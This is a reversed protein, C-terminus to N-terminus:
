PAPEGAVCLGDWCTAGPGCDADARCAAPECCYSPLTGDNAARCNGAEDTWAGWCEDVPDPDVCAWCGDQVVLTQGEACTPPIMDCVVPYVCQSPPAPPCGIATCTAYHECYGDPGCDADIECGEGPLPECVGMPAGCDCPEGNESACLCDVEYTVCQEGEACDLDSQCEPRPAPVCVGIMQFCGPEGTAPDAPCVTEFIECAEGPGCDLDSQCEGPEFRPECTGAAVPAGCYCDGAPGCDCYDDPDTTGSLNCFFEPGCDEDSFCESPRPQCFTPEWLGCDYPCDEGEACACDVMPQMPCFSDAPCDADSWCEAPGPECTGEVPEGGGCRCDADPPCDAGCRAVPPLECHEGPGCDANSSCTEIARCVGTLAICNTPSPEYGPPLAEDYDCYFGEGCDSDAFCEVPNPDDDDEIPGMCSGGTFGSLTIVFAAAVTARFLAELNATHTRM